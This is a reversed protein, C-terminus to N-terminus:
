FKRLPYLRGPKQSNKAAGQHVKAEKCWLGVQLQELSIASIGRIKEFGEQEYLEPDADEKSIRRLLHKSGEVTSGM